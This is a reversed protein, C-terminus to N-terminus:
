ARAEEISALASMAVGASWSEGHENNEIMLLAMQAREYRTWVYYDIRERQYDEYSEFMRGSAEDFYTM